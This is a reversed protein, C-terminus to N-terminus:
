GCRELSALASSIAPLDGMNASPPSKGPSFLLLSGHCVNSTVVRKAIQDVVNEPTEDDPRDTEFRGPRYAAHPDIYGLLVTFVLHDGFQGSDLLFVDFDVDVAVLYRDRGLRPGLAIFFVAFADQVAFAVEALYRASEPQALFDVFVAGARLVGVAHEFQRQRLLRRGCRLLERDLLVYSADHPSAAALGGKKKEKKAREFTCDASLIRM